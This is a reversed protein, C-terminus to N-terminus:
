LGVERNWSQGLFVQPCGPKRFHELIKPVNETLNVELYLSNSIRASLNVQKCGQRDLRRIAWIEEKDSTRALENHKWIEPM